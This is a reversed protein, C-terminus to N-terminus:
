GRLAPGHIDIDDVWLLGRYDLPVDELEDFSQVAAPDGDGANTRVVMPRVGAANMRALFRNPWGWILWQRDLPVSIFGGRCQTPVRGYWGSWLYADFCAEAAAVDLTVAEPFRERIAALLAPDGMVMARADMEREARRYEEALMQAQAPDADAFDFIIFRDGVDRVLEEVSPMPAIGQGRLPYREGDPTYGHSIDLRRLADFSMEAVAGEGNTRCDIRGDPFLVLRGDATARVDVEVYDARRALAGRIGSLSNSVFNHIPEAPIRVEPCPDGAPAEIPNQYLGGLAAIQLRGGPAAALWSANMATLVLLAVGVVALLVLRISIGGVERASGRM